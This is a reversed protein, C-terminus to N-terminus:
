LELVVQRRVLAKLAAAAAVARTQLALLVMLTQRVLALNLQETVVM